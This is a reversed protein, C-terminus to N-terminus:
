LVEATRVVCAAWCGGGGVVFVHSHWVGTQSRCCCACVGVLQRPVCLGVEGICWGVGGCCSM